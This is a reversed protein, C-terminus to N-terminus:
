VLRPNSARSQAAVSANRAALQRYAPGYLILEKQGMELRTYFSFIVWLFYLEFLGTNCAYILPGEVLSQCDQKQESDSCTSLLGLPLLVLVGLLRYRNHRYFRHVDETKLSWCAGLGIWGSNVCVIWYLFMLSDFHLLGSLFLLTGVFGVILQYAAILQCGTRLSINFSFCCGRLPSRGLFLPTDESTNNPVQQTDFSNSSASM